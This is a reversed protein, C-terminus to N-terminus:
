DTLQVVNILGIRGDNVATWITAGTVGGNGGRAVPGTFVYGVLGKQDYSPAGLEARMADSSMGLKLGHPLTIGKWEQPLSPCDRDPVVGPLRALTMGTVTDDGEGESLIWIRSGTDTLCLWSTAPGPGKRHNVDAGIHLGLLGLRTRELFIQQKGMRMTGTLPNTKLTAPAKDKVAIIPPAHEEAAFAPIAMALGLLVGILTTKM